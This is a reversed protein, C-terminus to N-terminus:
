VLNIVADILSLEGIGAAALFLSDPCGFGKKWYEKM